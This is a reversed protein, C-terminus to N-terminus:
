LFSIPHQSHSQNGGLPSRKWERRNTQGREASLKFLALAMFNAACCASVGRRVESVSESFSPWTLVCPGKFGERERERHRKVVTQREGGIPFSVPQNCTSDVSFRERRRKQPFSVRQYKDKVTSHFRRKLSFSDVM